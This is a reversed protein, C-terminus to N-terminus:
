YKVEKHWQKANKVGFILDIMPREGATYLDPQHFVGSGYGIIVETEPLKTLFRKVFENIM